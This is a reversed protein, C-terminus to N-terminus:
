HLLGKAVYGDRETRLTANARDLKVLEQVAGDRDLKAYKVDGGPANFRKQEQEHKYLEAMSTDLDRKLELNAAELVRCNEKLKRM